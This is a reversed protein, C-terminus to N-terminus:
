AAVAPLGVIPDDSLPPVITHRPTLDILRVPDPLLLRAQHANASDSRM